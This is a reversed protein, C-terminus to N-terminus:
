GNRNRWHEGSKLLIEQLPVSLSTAPTCVILRERARTIGVYFTRIVSDQDEGPRSWAQLAAASLDPFLFVVDAEGGKFSHITGVSLAEGAMTEHSRYWNPYRLLPDPGRRELVTLPFWITKASKASVNERVWAAVRSYGEDGGEHNLIGALQRFPGDPEFWYSWPGIQDGNTKAAVEIAGKQGFRILGRARMISVWRWLEENTWLHSEDGFATEDPALLAVLRDSMSVGRGVRLPNWAGQHVRWPNAFPIGAKRLEAILPFLMYGCTAAVMVTKGQDLYHIARRIVAMPSKWTGPTLALDGEAPEGNKEARPRYQINQWSSLNRAWRMAVDLVRAPVRYSQRLVRRHSEGVDPDNFLEPHAGRWTYLAQWPDGVLISAHCQEGWHQLLRYELESLDQAEDAMLVKPDGPPTTDESMAREILDTFDMVDEDDKWSEWLRAFDQIVDPWSSRARCQHRLLQYREQLEDGPSHSAAELQMEDLDKSDVGMALDGHRENWSKLVKGAAIKPKDLARYCHAHLTGIMERSIPLDRGAVEAAATRTLSCILVPRPHLWRSVDSQRQLVAEVQRGLWTTKGTGPPGITLYRGSLHPRSDSVSSITMISELYVTVSAVSGFL